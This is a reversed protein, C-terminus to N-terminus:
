IGPAILSWNIEKQEVFDVVGDEPHWFTIGPQNRVDFHLWNQGVEVFHIFPYLDPNNRIDEIVAEVTTDLMDADFADGRLHASRSRAFRELRDLEAKMGTLNKKPKWMDETRFGRQTFGYKKSNLRMRGHRNRIQQLSIAALPNIIMIAGKGWREVATPPLLESTQFHDPNPHYM